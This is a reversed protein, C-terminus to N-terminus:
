NNKTDPARRIKGIVQKEEDSFEPVPKGTNWDRIAREMWRFAVAFADEFERIRDTREDAEERLKRNEGWVDPVSVPVAPTHHKAWVMFAGGIVAVVISGGVTVVTGPNQMLWEIV